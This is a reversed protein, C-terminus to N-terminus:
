RSAFEQPPCGFSPFLTQIACVFYTLFDDLNNDYADLSLWANPLPCQQAWTSLFRIKGYGVPAVILTLPALPEFCQLLRQRTIADNGIRPPYLKTRLLFQSTRKM